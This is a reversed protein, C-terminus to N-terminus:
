FLKAAKKANDQKWKPQKNFDDRSVKFVAAFDGDSLYQEKHQPDVNAIKNAQLDALSHKSSADLYGIDSATVRQLGGSAKQESAGSAAAVHGAASASGMAALKKAYPDSFDSARKEDWGFFHCTFTPPEAGAMVRYVPTDPSRGDPLHQVYELATKMAQDKEEKSSEHGIWVFIESGVDLILVDENILDDQTFNFVETLKFSGTAATTGLFLRPDRV